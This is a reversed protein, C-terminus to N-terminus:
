ITGSGDVTLLQEYSPTHQLRKSVAKELTKIQQSLCDLIALSSTIALVQSAEPLLPKLEKATFERMRKVSFRSGTHRVMINQVSLVHATHQRVFHARKRLVDRVARDAKPYIYGAPFVGLRLLHGLWRADSPDDSYKLGTYQQIAAPNALHVRYDAERLGDVLGYWNYTSEVM